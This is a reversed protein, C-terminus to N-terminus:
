LVTPDIPASGVLVTDHGNVFVVLLSAVSKNEEKSGAGTAQTDVQRGGVDDDKIVAVPSPLSKEQSGLESLHVPIWLGVQLCHVAGVADTLGFLYEDEPEDGLTTHLLPHQLTRSLLEPKVLQDDLLTPLLHRFTFCVGSRASVTM